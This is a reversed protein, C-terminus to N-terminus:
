VGVADRNEALAAKRRGRGIFRLLAVVDNRIRRVALYFGTVTLALGGLMLTLTIIDWIPRARMWATFDIRHFGGFLWRYWRAVADARQLLAGSRPDLIESM